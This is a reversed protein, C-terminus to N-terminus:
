LAFNINFNIVFLKLAKTKISDFKNYVASPLSLDWYCIDYEPHLYITRNDRHTHINIDCALRGLVFSIFLWRDFLFLVKKLSAQSHAGRSSNSRWCALVM